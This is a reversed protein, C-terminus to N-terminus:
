SSCFDCVITGLDTVVQLLFAVCLKLMNMYM